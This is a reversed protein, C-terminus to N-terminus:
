YDIDLRHLGAKRAARVAAEYEQHTIRRAIESVEFARYCPRYQAMVNVYIEPDLAAIFEMVPQTTSFDHPMVLHRVLLGRRALGREDIELPGTQRYMERVAEKMREPYDPAQCLRQAIQSDIFKADPMYIDVIGELLRLAEVSEYGGCNYVIPLRLGLPIAARIAQMIQPMFHTPTVFNINHCGRQQLLLMIYALREPALEQGALINHSIDYNQCFLCGLNCGSFFITGSGGVGVLPREEGFHPGYSAVRALAGGQCFGKEGALRNVRCQRPCLTCAALLGQAAELRQQWEEATLNLYSPYAAM